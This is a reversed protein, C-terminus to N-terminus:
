IGHKVRVVSSLRRGLFSEGVKKFRQAEDSVFFRLAARRGPSNAIGRAEIFERAAKATSVASDVLTVKKGMVKRIGSKLLPYHTCGLILTDIDKNKLSSLYQRIVNDTVKSALWGEEVLPVFLPCSRSFVKISRGRAPKFLGKNKLIQKEYAKSSITTSTGIVGIRGSRSSLVADRAGPAIVGIVPVKFNRKLTTLAVSSSTNCAAIVLKVKNKLLFLTNEISFKVVTDRSKVGYPVRATDGFYVIDEGPLQRVLEKVVTLGGIGSDFIGIPRRDISV